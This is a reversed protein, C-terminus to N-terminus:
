TVPTTEQSGCTEERDLFYIGGRARIVMPYIIKNLACICSRVTGASRDPMLSELLESLSIGDPGAKSVATFIQWQRNTLKHELPKPEMPALCYPCHNAGEIM